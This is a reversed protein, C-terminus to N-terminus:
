PQLGELALHMGWLTDAGSSAGMRAIEDAREVAEAASRANILHGILESFSGALAHLLFERGVLTTGTEGAAEIAKRVQLNEKLWAARWRWLVALTGV